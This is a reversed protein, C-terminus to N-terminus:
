KAKWEKSKSCVQQLNDWFRMTRVLNSLDVNKNKYAIKNPIIGNNLPVGDYNDNKARSKSTFLRAITTVGAHADADADADADLNILNESLSKQWLGNRLFQWFYRNSVQFVLESDFSSGIVVLCIAMHNTYVSNDARTEVDYM